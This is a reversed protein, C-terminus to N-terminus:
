SETTKWTFECPIGTRPFGTTDGDDSCFWWPSDLGAVREATFNRDGLIKASSATITVINQGHIEANITISRPM